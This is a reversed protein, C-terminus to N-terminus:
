SRATAEEKGSVKELWYEEDLNYSSLTAHWVKAAKAEMAQSHWHKGTKPNRGNVIYRSKTM